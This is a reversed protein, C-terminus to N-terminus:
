RVQFERRLLVAGAEDLVDVRWSGAGFVTSYSWTRWTEGKIDLPITNREEDGRYWVHRVTRRRGAPNDVQTFLYVRQGESFTEGLGQPRRDVISAALVAEPFSLAGAGAPVSGGTAPTASPGPPAESARPTEAPPPSPTAAPVRSAGVGDPLPEQPLLATLEVDPYAGAPPVVPTPSPAPAPPPTEGGCGALLLLLLLYRM